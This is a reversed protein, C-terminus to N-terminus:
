LVQNRRTSRSSSNSNSSNPIATSPRLTTSMASYSNASPQRPKIFAADAPSTPAISTPPLWPSASSIPCRQLNSVKTLPLVRSISLLTLLHLNNRQHNPQKLNPLRFPRKDRTRLCSYMTAPQPHLSTGPPPVQPCKLSGPAVQPIPSALCIPYRQHNPAPLSNLSAFPAASNSNPNCVKQKGSSLAVNASSSGSSAEDKAVRLSTIIFRQVAFCFGGLPCAGRHSFTTDILSKTDAM